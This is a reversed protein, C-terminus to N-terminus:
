INKFLKYPKIWHTKPSDTKAVKYFVEVEKFYKKLFLNGKTKSM